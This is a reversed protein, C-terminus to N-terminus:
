KGAEPKEPFIRVLAKILVFFVILVLFVAAIGVAMIFLGKEINSAGILYDIM